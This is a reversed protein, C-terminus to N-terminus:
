IHILSLWQGSDTYESQHQGDSGSQDTAYDDGSNFENIRMNNPSCQSAKHGRSRIVDPAIAHIASMKNEDSLLRGRRIRM